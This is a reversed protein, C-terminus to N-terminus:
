RAAGPSAGRASSRDDRDVRLVAAGDTGSGFSAMVTAHELAKGLTPYLDQTDRSPSWDDNLHVSLADQHDLLVYDISRWADHEPLHVDRDVDLKTFWIVRDRPYGARVLDVWFADDVVLTDTPAATSRLFSLAAAKGADRDRHWLDDIGYRWPTWASVVLAVVFGVAAVGVLSRFPARVLQAPTAPLAGSGRRRALGSWQVLVDVVGAVTLAAFPIMAVVFPYPLYGNRLLSTLQIALALAVARTRRLLLGPVVVLVAAVCSTDDLNLWTSVVSHATSGQDFISGSGTRGFLQWNVAWQLSV